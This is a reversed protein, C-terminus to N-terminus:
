SMSPTSHRRSLTALFPQYSVTPTNKIHKLCPLSLNNKTEFRADRNQPQKQKVLAQHTQTLVLYSVPHMHVVCLSCNHWRRMDKTGKEEWNKTPLYTPLYAFSGQAITVKSLYPDNHPDSLRCLEWWDQDQKSFLTVSENKTYTDQKAKSQQIPQCSGKEHESHVAHHRKANHVHKPEISVAAIRCACTCRALSAPRLWDTLRSRVFSRVFSLPFFPGLIGIACRLHDLEIRTASQNGSGLYFSRVFSPLFSPVFSGVLWSLSICTMLQVQM